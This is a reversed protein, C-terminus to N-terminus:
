AESVKRYTIPFDVEWSKGDPSTDYRGEIVRGGDRFNGLFRQHFGEAARELTWTDESLTGRYIRFVGRSDSYLQVVEDTSDDWGIVSRTTAPAHEVWDPHTWEAESRELLYAGDEIWEFTARGRGPSGGELVPEFEWAGVLRGLPSDAM